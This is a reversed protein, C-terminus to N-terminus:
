RLNQVRYVERRESQASPALAEVAVTALKKGDTMTTTPSIYVTLHSYGAYNTGINKVTATVTLISGPNITSPSFGGTPVVLDANQAVASTTLTMCLVFMSTLLSKSSIQLM